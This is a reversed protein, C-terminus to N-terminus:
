MKEEKNHKFPTSFRFINWTKIHKAVNKFLELPANLADDLSSLWSCGMLVFPPEASKSCEVKFM